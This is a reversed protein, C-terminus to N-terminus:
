KKLHSTWARIRRERRQREKKDKPEGQGPISSWVNMLKATPNKEGPDDILPKAAEVIIQQIHAMPRTPRKRQELEQIRQELERQRKGEAVERDWQEMESRDRERLEDLTPHM